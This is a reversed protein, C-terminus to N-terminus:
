EELIDNDYGYEHMATVKVREEWCPACFWVEDIEPDPKLPVDSRGCKACEADPPPVPAPHGAEGDPKPVETV